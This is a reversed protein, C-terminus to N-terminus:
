HDDYNGLLYFWTLLSGARISRSEHFQQDLIELEEYLERGKLKFLLELDSTFLNVKM